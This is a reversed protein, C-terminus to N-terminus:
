SAPVVFADSLYLDGVLGPSDFTALTMADRYWLEEPHDKMYGHGGLIQVGDDASALAAAVAQGCAWMVYRDADPLGTDVGWAAKWVLLRAADIEMARDAIKFSIAQFAGIPRGFATREKAYATAYEVAARALGLAVGANLLKSRLLARRVTDQDAGPGGIVSSGPLDLEEITVKFTRAARLGLKDEPKAEVEADTPLQWIGVGEDSKAVVLRIQAVDAEPVAYKVGSLRVGGATSEAVTALQTFDAGADREALAISGKAGEAIRPLLEARQDDSGAMDVLTAALGPALVGFAVGPDGWALEEAIIVSTVADFVGQGGFEEPVPAAVGMEVLQKTITESPKGAEECERAAPRIENQSFDHLAERIAQQEDTAKLEM